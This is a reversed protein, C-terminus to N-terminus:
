NLKSLIFFVIRKNENSNIPHLDKFFVSFL